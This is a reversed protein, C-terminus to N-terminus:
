QRKKETIVRFTKELKLANILDTAAPETSLNVIALTIGTPGFNDNKYLGFVHGFLSILMVPVLFTIIMAPKNRTFLLVSKKFLVFIPTM